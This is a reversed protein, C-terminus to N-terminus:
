HYAERALEKILPAKLGQQMGPDYAQWIAVANGGLTRKMRLQQSALWDHFMTVFTYVIEADRVNYCEICEWAKHLDCQWAWKDPSKGLLFQPTPYKPLGISEGLDQLSIGACLNMSDWIEIPKSGPAPVWVARNFTQEYYHITIL